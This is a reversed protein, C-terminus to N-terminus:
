VDEQKWAYLRGSEGESVMVHGIKEDMRRLTDEVNGIDANLLKSVQQLM